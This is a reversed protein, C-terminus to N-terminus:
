RDGKIGGAVRAKCVVICFVMRQLVRSPLLLGGKKMPNMYHDKGPGSFRLGRLKSTGETSYAQLRSGKQEPFLQFLKEKIIIVPIKGAPM